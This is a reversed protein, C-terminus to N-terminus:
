PRAEAAELLRVIDLHRKEKAKMSATQGEHDKENVEAGRGLLLKAIATHGGAAAHMLATQGAQDKDNVEAGRALLDKVQSVSGEAAATMLLTEGKRNRVTLERAAAWRRVIGFVILVGGPFLLFVIATVARESTRGDQTLLYVLLCVGALAFLVVPLADLFVKGLDWRHKDPRSAQPVAQREQEGRWSPPTQVYSATPGPVALQALADRFQDATQFRGAPDKDLAKLLVAGLRPDLYPRLASLPPAPEHLIQGLVALAPGEFPLRGTLMQFIIVGVSYLDTWPGVRESQGAAQEPAMYAPTGVIIGDSTLREAEQEPRALGFDTLVARGAADLLINSPKLDRHIIGHGHVAALAELVQRTLTLAEAVDELRGRRTLREALSQGEVFAMVVYPQGGHEGVDYLPCVHSHWVQAASRAERQFREARRDRDASLPDIRPVKLAVTRDLHPDRAKYVTGM